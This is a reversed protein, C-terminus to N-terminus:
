RGSSWPSSLWSWCRRPRDSRQDALPTAGYPLCDRHSDGAVPRRRPQRCCRVQPVMRKMTRWPAWEQLTCPSITPWCRNMTAFRGFSTPLVESALSSGSLLQSVRGDFNDLQRPRATDPAATGSPGHGMQVGWPLPRHHSEMFVPGAQCIKRALSWNRFAALLRSGPKGTTWLLRFMLDASAPKTITPVPRATPQRSQQAGSSDMLNIELVM